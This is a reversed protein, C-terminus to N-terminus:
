LSAWKLDKPLSSLNESGGETVVYNDEIRVGGVGAIYIGPEITVVMGSELTTEPARHSLSPEEHTKLGIGHGLGHGFLDGYGYKTIYDRALADVAKTTTRAKLGAAALKHADLVIKYIEEIKAPWKGMCFTRTMDGRYGQYVAGWDILLPQNKKLKVPHPRYHPLSGNANAGVITEFAPASSGRTKMAAELRAAIELETQGARITPIVEKLAAQQISIAKRITAIESADKRVRLQSVLGKTETFTTGTGELAHELGRLDHVTMVESQIGLRAVNCDRLLQVLAAHMGQTRIVIDFDGKQPTLEEEYRFDSLIIARAADHSPVLLYSDGGHFGTLYAVDEPSTILLHSLAERDFLRRLRAIRELAPSGSGAKPSRSATKGAGKKAARSARPAVSKRSAVATPMFPIIGLWLGHWRRLATGDFDAARLRSRHKM